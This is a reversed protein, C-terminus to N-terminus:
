VKNPRCSIFLCAHFACSILCCLLELTLPVSESYCSAYYLVSYGRNNVANVNAGYQILLKAIDARRYLAALHLAKSGDDIDRETINDYTELLERLGSVNGDRVVRYIADDLEEGVLAKTTEDRARKM